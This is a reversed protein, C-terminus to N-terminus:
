LLLQSLIKYSLSVASKVMVQLPFFKRTCLAIMEALDLTNLAMNCALWTSLKPDECSSVMAM